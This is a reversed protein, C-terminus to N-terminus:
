RGDREQRVARRRRAIGRLLQVGLFIAGAPGAFRLTAPGGIVIADVVVGSGIHRAGYWLVGAGTVGLPGALGILKDRSAWERSFGALVAGFLWLPIPLLLCGLGLLGLAGAEVAHSRVQEAFGGAGDPAPKPRRAAWHARAARRAQAASAPNWEYNRVTRRGRVPAPPRGSLYSGPARPARGREHGAGDLRRRERRVLREPDGFRALVRRVEAPDDSGRRYEEIRARLRTMFDVRERSGLHRHAAEAVAALYELILREASEGMLFHHRV